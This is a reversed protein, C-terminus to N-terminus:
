VGSFMLHATIEPTQGWFHSNYCTHSSHAILLSRTTQRAAIGNQIRDGSSTFADSSSSPSNWQWAPPTGLGSILHDMLPMGIELTNVRGSGKGSVEVGGKARTAPIFVEGEQLISTLLAMLLKSTRYQALDDITKSFTYM